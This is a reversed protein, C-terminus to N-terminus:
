QTPGPMAAQLLAPSLRFDCLGVVQEAENSALM